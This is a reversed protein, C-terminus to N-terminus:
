LSEIRAESVYGVGQGTDAEVTMMFLVADGKCIYIHLREENLSSRYVRFGEPLNMPPDARVECVEHGLIRFTPVVKVPQVKKSM